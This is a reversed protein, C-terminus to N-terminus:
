FLNQICCSKVNKKENHHPNQKDMARKRQTKMQVSVARDMTVGQPAYSWFLSIPISICMERLDKIIFLQKSM